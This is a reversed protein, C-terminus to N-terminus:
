KSRSLFSLAMGGADVIGYIPEHLSVLSMEMFGDIPMRLSLDTDIDNVHDNRGGIVLLGHFVCRVIVDRLLREDEDVDVHRMVTAVTILTHIVLAVIGCATTLSPSM